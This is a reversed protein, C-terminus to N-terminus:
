SDVPRRADLLVIRFGPLAMGQKREGLTTALTGDIDILAEKLEGRARKKWIRTRVRNICDMLTEIDSPRFRRTFDGATAPDPLRQAGLANLFTADQRRLEIDELRQGGVLANFAINLVHDSEHCPLHVKLFHLHRDIEKVLGVRRVLHHFAGIGGCTIAEAKGSMEYHINGGSMMPKVQSCWQKRPGKRRQPKELVTLQARHPHGVLRLLRHAIRLAAPFVELVGLTANVCSREKESPVPRQNFQTKGFVVGSLRSQHLDKM